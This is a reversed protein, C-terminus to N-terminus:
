NSQPSYIASQLGLTFHLGFASQVSLTFHLTFMPEFHLILVSWSILM